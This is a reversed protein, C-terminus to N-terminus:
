YPLQWLRVFGDDGGSIAQRGDTAFSVTRVPKGHGKFRHLMRGEAVSWLRVTGDFGSSLLRKGDPSVALSHVANEHGTLDRAKFTVGDWIRIVGDDGASAFGNPLFVVARVASAHASWQRIVQGKGCDWLILLGDENGTLARKADPSLASAHIGGTASMEFARKQRAVLDWLFVEDASASLLLKGDSSLAAATILRTHGTLPEGKAELTLPNWLQIGLETPPRKNGGATAALTGDPTMAFARVPSSLNAFQPQKKSELDWRAIALDLGASVISPREKGPIAAVGIIPQTHISRSEVQGVLVLRVTQPEDPLVVVRDPLLERGPVEVLPRIEYDGPKLELEKIKELDLVQERGQNVLVVKLAPPDSAFEIKVPKAEVSAPDAQMAWVGLGGLAAASAVAVLWRRRTIRSKRSAIESEINEIIQQVAAASPPRDAPAKELLQEILKALAPLVLPNAELVPKPKDLVVRVMATFAKADAFPRSGTAIRYLVCGLSFLDARHDVSEGLAQEPALYGPTGSIGTSAATEDARVCALGFDLVKVRGNSEELWLNGPKIDRHILGREHAASLGAATDRGIRLIQALPLIKESSNLLQELSQGRLLPMVICPVGDHNEVSHIVVINDHEVRAIAQAEQLFREAMGSKAVLDPRVIKIAIARKLRPDFGRLVMGMGGAGLVQHIIFPGLRGIEGPELAPSLISIKESSTSTTTAVWSITAANEPQLRKLLPMLASALHSSRTDDTHGQTRMATVVADEGPLNRLSSVCASCDAVHGEIGITENEDLRGLILRELDNLSPCVTANGM